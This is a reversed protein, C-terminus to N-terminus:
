MVALLGNVLGQQAKKEIQKLTDISKENLNLSPLAALVKLDSLYLQQYAQNAKEEAKNLSPSMAPIQQSYYVFSPQIVPLQPYLPQYAPQDLLPASPPFHVYYPNQDYNNYNNFSM